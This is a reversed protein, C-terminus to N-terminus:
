KLLGQLFMWSLQMYIPEMKPNHLDFIRKGNIKLWNGVIRLQNRFAKPLSGDARLGVNLMMNGNKSVIDRLNRIIQEGTLRVLDGADAVEKWEGVIDRMPGMNCSNWEQYSSDYLDFNDCHVAMAGVFRIGVEECYFKM